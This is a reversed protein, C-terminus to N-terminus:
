LEKRPNIAGYLQHYRGTLDEDCKKGGFGDLCRCYPPTSAPVGRGQLEMCVGQSPDCGECKASFLLCHDTM